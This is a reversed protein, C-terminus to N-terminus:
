VIGDKGAKKLGVWFFGWGVLGWINGGGNFKIERDGNIYGFFLWDGM